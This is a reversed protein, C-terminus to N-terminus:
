LSTLSNDKYIFKYNCNEKNPCPMEEPPKSLDIQGVLESGCGPCKGVVTAMLKGDNVGKQIPAGNESIVRIETYYKGKKVDKIKSVREM